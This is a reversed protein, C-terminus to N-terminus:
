IVIRSKHAITRPRGTLHVGSDAHPRVRRVTMPALSPIGQSYFLLPRTGRRVM